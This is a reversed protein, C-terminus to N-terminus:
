VFLLLLVLSMHHVCTLTLDSTCVIVFCQGGAWGRYRLTVEGVCRSPSLPYCTATSVQSKSESQVSCSSQPQCVTPCSTQLATYLGLLSWPIMLLKFNLGFKTRQSWLLYFSIIHEAINGPDPCVPSLSPTWATLAWTDGPCPRPGPPTWSAWHHKSCVWQDCWLPLLDINPM